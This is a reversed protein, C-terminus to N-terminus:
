SIEYLAKEEVVPTMGRNEGTVDEGVAQYTKSSFGGSSLLQLTQQLV